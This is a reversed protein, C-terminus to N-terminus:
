AREAEPRIRDLIEEETIPEVGRGRRAQKRGGSPSIDVLKPRVRFPGLRVEPPLPYLPGSLRYVVYYAEYIGGAASSSLTSLYSACQAIGNRLDERVKSSGEHYAKAEVLLPTKGPALEAQLIDPELDELKAKYFVRLGGDFLYACLDRAMEDEAKRRKIAKEALARMEPKRYWECRTKYRDVLTDAAFSASFRSTLGEYARSLKAKYSEVEELARKREEERLSRPEYVLQNVKEVLFLSLHADVLEEDDLGFPLIEPEPNLGHVVVLLDRLAAEPAVRKWDVYRHIEYSYRGQLHQYVAQLDRGAEDRGWLREGKLGEVRGSLIELMWGEATPESSYPDNLDQPPYSNQDVGEAGVLEDFRDIGYIAQFEEVGGYRTALAVGVEGGDEAEPHEHLLREKFTAMDQRLPRLGDALVRLAREHDRVMEELYPRVRPNKLWDEVLLRRMELVFEAGELALIREVKRDFVAVLDSVDFAM